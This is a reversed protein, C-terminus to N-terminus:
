NIKQVIKDYLERLQDIDGSFALRDAELIEDHSVLNFDLLFGSNKALLMLFLRITRGNGERFPHLANLESSLWTLQNVFDQRKLNTLYHRIRM